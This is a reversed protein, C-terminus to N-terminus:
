RAQGSPRMKSQDEIEEIQKLLEERQLAETEGVLKLRLQRLKDALIFHKGTPDIASV